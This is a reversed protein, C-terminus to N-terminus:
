RAPTLTAAPSLRSGPTPTLTPGGPTPTFPEFVFPTESAVPNTRPAFSFVSGIVMSLAVVAGIVYYIIISTNWKKKKQKLRAKKAM